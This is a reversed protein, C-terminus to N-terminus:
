CDAKIDTGAADAAANLANALQRAQEASFFAISKASAGSGESLVVQAHSRAGGQSFQGEDDTGALVQLHRKAVGYEDSCQTSGKLSYKQDKLQHVPM